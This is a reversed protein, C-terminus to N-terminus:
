VSYYLIPIEQKEALCVANLHLLLSHNASFLFLTDSHILMDGQAKQKLSSASIWSLMNAYYLVSRMM